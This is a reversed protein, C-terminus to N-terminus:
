GIQGCFSDIVINWESPDQVLTIIEARSKNWRQECLPLIREAWVLPKNVIKWSKTRFQAAIECFLLESSYMSEHLFEM